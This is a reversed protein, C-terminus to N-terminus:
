AHLTFLPQGVSVHRGIPAHLALGAAPARPAGALKAARALRRNDIADVRGSRTAIIERTYAARPPERLGGQAECIAVFKRWADGRELHRRALALGEGEPVRGGLE